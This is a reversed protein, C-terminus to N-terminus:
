KRLQFIRVVPGPREFSELSITPGYMQDWIQPPAIDGSFPKFEGIMEANAALERYFQQRIATQSPDVFQLNTIFSSTVIYDTGDALYRALDYHDPRAWGIEQIAYRDEGRRPLRPGGPGVQDRFFPTHIEAAIKAGSPVNQEFWDGALTRTDTQMLLLNHLISNRAPVIILAVAFAAALYPRWAQKSLPLQATLHIVLRAALIVLFPILPLAYRAFYHLTAGMLLYYIVPFALLVLDQATRRYFAWVIGALATLLLPLGLGWHLTKFYFVWGPVTDIYLGGFTMGAQPRMGEMILRVPDVWLQPSLLLFGVCFSFAMLYPHKHRILRNVQLIPSRWHSSRTITIILTLLLPLLLVMSTWKTASAIGGFFGALVFYRSRPNRLAIVAFYISVTILFTAPIDAVSYHSDRVHLFAFGLFLASLLGVGLNYASRGILFVVFVTATGLVGSLTRAATEVLTPDMRASDIFVSLSEFYGFLSGFLYLAGFELNMLINWGPNVDYSLTGELLRLSREVNRAGDQHYSYPLGFDNGWLRLVLSSSLILGLFVYVAVGFRAQNQIRDQVALQVEPFSPQLTKTEIDIQAPM